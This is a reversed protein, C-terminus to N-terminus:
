RWTRRLALASAPLRTSGAPQSTSRRAQAGRVGTHHGLLECCSTAYLFRCMGSVPQWAAGARLNVELAAATGPFRPFRRKLQAPPLALDIRSFSPPPGDQGSGCAAEPSSGCDDSDQYDDAADWDRRHVSSWTLVTVVAACPCAAAPRRGCEESGSNGAGRGAMSDLAAKLAADLAADAAGPQACAAVAADVDRRQQWAAVDAAGSGDANM